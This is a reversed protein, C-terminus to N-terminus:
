LTSPPTVYLMIYYCFTAMLICYVVNSHVSGIVVHHYNIINHFLQFASRFKKTGDRSKKHAKIM